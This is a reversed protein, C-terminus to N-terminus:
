GLFLDSSFDAITLDAFTVKSLGNDHVWVVDDGVQTAGAQFESLSMGHIVDETVDFDNVLVSSTNSYSYGSYAANAEVPWPDSSAPEGIGVPWPGSSAPEGIGVPGPGSSAPEGVGVLGSRSFHYEDAGEGGWVDHQGVGLYFIDDGGGGKIVSEGGEILIIDDGNGGDINTVDGGPLARGRNVAIVDHGDEGYIVDEGFGADSLGVHIEDDGDGAYIVDAGKGGKIMDDSSGGFILDDGDGGQIDNRGSLGILMDVMDTGVIENVTDYTVEAGYGLTEFFGKLNAQGEVTHNWDYWGPNIANLLEVPVDDLTITIKDGRTKDIAGDPAPLYHVIKEITGSVPRKEGTSDSQYELDSGYAMFPTGFLGGFPGEFFSFAGFKFMNESASYIEKTAM